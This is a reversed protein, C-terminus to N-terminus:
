WNSCDPCIAHVFQNMSRPLYDVVKAKVRYKGPWPLDIIESITKIKKEPKAQHESDYEENFKRKNIAVNTNTSLPSDLIENSPVMLLHHDVDDREAESLSDAVDENPGSPAELLVPSVDKVIETPAPVKIEHDVIDKLPILEKEINSAESNSFTTTSVTTPIIELALQTALIPQSGCTGEM